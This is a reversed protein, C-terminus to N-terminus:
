FCNNFSKVNEFIVCINLTDAFTLFSKSRNSIKSIIKFKKMLCVADRSKRCSAQYFWVADRSKGQIIFVLPVSIFVKLQSFPQFSEVIEALLAHFSSLLGDTGETSTIRSQLSTGERM